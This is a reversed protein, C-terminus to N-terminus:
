TLWAIRRCFPRFKVAFFILYPHLFDNALYELVNGESSRGSVVLAVIVGAVTAWNYAAHQM